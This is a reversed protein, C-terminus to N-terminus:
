TYVIQCPLAVKKNQYDTLCEKMLQAERPLNSELASWNNLVLKKPLVNETEIVDWFADWTKGYYDPLKLSNFLLDHLEDASTLEGLHLEIINIRNM